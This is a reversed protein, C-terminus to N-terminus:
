RFYTALLRDGVVPVESLTLTTGVLTYDETAGPQLLMGNFFISDTGVAPAYALEFVANVGDITGTPVERNVYKAYTLNNPAAAEIVDVRNDIATDAAERTAVEAAIAAERDSVEQAISATHVADATTRALAEADIANQLVVDAASSTAALASVQADRATAEAAIATSLTTNLLTRATVENDIALQLNDEVGEARTQEAAIATANTADGAVRLAAEAAVAATIDAGSSTELAAVAAQVTAIDAAHTAEATALAGDLLGLAAKLSTAGTLYNQGVPLVFSGDAELGAGQRTATVMSEITTQLTGDAALWAASVAAIADMREQDTSMTSYISAIDAEIQTLDAAFSADVRDRPITSPRIQLGRITSKM